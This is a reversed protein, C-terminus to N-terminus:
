QRLVHLHSEMQLRETTLHIVSQNCFQRPLVTDDSSMSSQVLMPSNKWQYVPLIM